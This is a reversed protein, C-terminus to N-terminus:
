VNRVCAACHRVISYDHAVPWWVVTSEIIIIIVHDLLHMVVAHGGSLRGFRGSHQHASYLVCIAHRHAM